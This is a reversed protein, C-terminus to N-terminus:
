KFNSYAFNILYFLPIILGGFILVKKYQIDNGKNDNINEENKNSAKLHNENANNKDGIKEYEKFCDAIKQYCIIKHYASNKYTTNIYIILDKYINKLDERKQPINLKKELKKLEDKNNNCSKKNKM